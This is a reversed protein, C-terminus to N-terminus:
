LLKAAKELFTRLIGFFKDPEDAFIYHGSKEFIEVQAHPHNKRLFETKNPDHFLLDWKAEIILTPITFNNFKNKLNIQYQAFGMLEEFEPAPQWEYLVKRILTDKSPRVCYQRKWDGALLKNYIVQAANIKGLRGLEGVYEIADEEAQSIVLHERSRNVNSSPIGPM